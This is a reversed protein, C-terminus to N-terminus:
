AADAADLYWAWLTDGDVTQFGLEDGDIMDLVNSAHSDNNASLEMLANIAETRTMEIEEIYRDIM